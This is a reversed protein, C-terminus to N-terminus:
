RPGICYAVHQFDGVMGMVVLGQGPLQNFLDLCIVQLRFHHQVYIILLHIQARLDVALSGTVAMGKVVGFQLLTCPLFVLGQQRGAIIFLM